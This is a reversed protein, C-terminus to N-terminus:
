VNQMQKRSSFTWSDSRETKQRDRTHGAAREACAFATGCMAVPLAILPHSADDYPLLLTCAVCLSCCCCPGCACACSSCADAPGESRPVTREAACWDRIVCSLARLAGAQPPAPWCCAPCDLLLLAPTGRLAHGLSPRDAAAGQQSDQRSVAGMCAHNLKCAGCVRSAAAAPPLAARGLCVQMIAPRPDRAANACM